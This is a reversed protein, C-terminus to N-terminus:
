VAAPNTIYFVGNAAGPLATTPLSGSLSNTATSRLRDRVEEVGAKSAFFATQEDRFNSSVNTETNSMMIMGMLVASILLLVLLALVLAVGRESTKRRKGGFIKM